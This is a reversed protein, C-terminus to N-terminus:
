NNNICIKFKLLEKITNQFKFIYLLISVRRGGVIPQRGPILAEDSIVPTPVNPIIDEQSSTPNEFKPQEESKTLEEPKSTDESSKQSALQALHSKLFGRGAMELFYFYFVM